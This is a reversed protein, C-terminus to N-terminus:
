LSSRYISLVSKLHSSPSPSPSQDCRHGNDYCATTGVQRSPVISVRSDCPVVNSIGNAFRVQTVVALLNASPCVKRHGIVFYERNWTFRTCFSYRKLSALAIQQEFSVMSRRLGGPEWTEVFHGGTREFDRRNYTMVPWSLRGRNRMSDGARRADHYTVPIVQLGSWRPCNRRGCWAFYM